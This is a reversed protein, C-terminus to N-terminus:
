QMWTPKHMPLTIPAKEVTTDTISALHYICGVQSGKFQRSWDLEECPIAVVDGLFGKLNKFSASSFDDVVAVEGGQGQLELVLNSGIFGAGGTVITLM